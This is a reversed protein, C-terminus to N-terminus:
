EEDVTEAYRIGDFQPEIVQNGNRDVFGWLGNSKVAALGNAFNKADDYRFEIVVEGNKNIFGFKDGMSVRALGESFYYRITYPQDKGILKGTEVDLYCMKDDSKVLAMKDAYLKSDNYILPVVEEGLINIYGCKGVRTVPALGNMFRDVKEYIPRVIYNGQVDVFGWHDSKRVPAYYERFGRHVEYNDPNPLIEGNLNMYEKVEEKMVITIGSSFDWAKELSPEIVFEGSSNIYGWKSNIQVAALGESFDRAAEFHPEIVYNGSVDIFGWKKNEQVRALGEAFDHKCLYPKNHSIVNGEANVYNWGTETKAMAVGSFFEKMALYAPEVKWNGNQDIAGWIENVSVPIILQQAQNNQIISGSIALILFLYKM